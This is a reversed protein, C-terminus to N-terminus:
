NSPLLKFPSDLAVQRDEHAGASMAEQCTADQAASERVLRDSYAKAEAM